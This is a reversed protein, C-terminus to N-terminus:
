MIYCSVSYTFHPFSYFWVLKTSRFKCCHHSLCLISIGVRFPIFLSLFSPSLEWAVRFSAPFVVSSRFVQSYDDRDADDTKQVGQPNTGRCSHQVPTIGRLSQRSPRSRTSQDARHLPRWTQQFAFKGGKFFWYELFPWVVWFM